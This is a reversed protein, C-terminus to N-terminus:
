DKLADPVARIESPVLGLYEKVSERLGQTTGFGTMAAVTDIPEDTNCLMEIATETRCRDVYEHFGFGAL